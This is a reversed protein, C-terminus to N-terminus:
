WGVGLAIRYVPIYTHHDGGRSTFDGIFGPLTCAATLLLRASRDRLWEVGLRPEAAFGVDVQTHLSILTFGLSLGAFPSWSRPLFFTVAASPGM